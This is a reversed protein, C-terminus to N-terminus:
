HIKYKLSEYINMKETKDAKYDEIKINLSKYIDRKIKMYLDFILNYKAIQKFKHPLKKILPFYFTMIYEKETQTLEKEYDM